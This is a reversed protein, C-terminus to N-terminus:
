RKPEPAMAGDSSPDARRLTFPGRDVVRGDRTRLAFGRYSGDDQLMGVVQVVELGLEDIDSRVLYLRTGILRGSLLTEGDRLVATVADEEREIMVEQVDLQSESTATACVYRGPELSLAFVAQTTDAAHIAGTALILALMPMRRPNM